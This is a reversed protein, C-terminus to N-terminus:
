GWSTFLSGIMPIPNLLRWGPGPDGIAADLELPSSVDGGPSTVTVRGVVAGVRAAGIDDLEVRSMGSHAAWGPRTREVAAVAAASDGWPARFTAYESGAAIVPVPAAGSRASTILALIDAELTDYDPERLFAASFAMTADGEGVTASFLLCVGAADTFSRSIGTIGESQLYSTTNEVGRDNVLASAPNALIEAIAPNGTTLTALRAVDSATGVSRESLGTTDVVHIGSLDHEALWANAAGLYADVSGYAWRALTDAHNNSSGLITAQLLERETWSEGPFVAVARADASSYDIYGQYDAPGITVSPGTHGAEVPKTDLVVLTTVLKAIGAIPIPDATGSVAVPATDGDVIVASAGEAPLVPPSSTTEPEPTMSVASTVAPLPGLLTAPGYVGLTLIAVTGGLIGFFRGPRFTRM